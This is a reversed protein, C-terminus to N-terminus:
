VLIVGKGAIRGDLLAQIAEAGRDLPYRAGIHPQIRGEVYWNQLRDFNSADNNDSRRQSEGWFVGVLSAGKLMLRNTEIRPITGSAFGFVLLRGKWGLSRVAEEGLTGGVPDLILAAGKDETFAAVATKLAGTRYNFVAEAGRARAHALREDDGDVALVRAGAIAALEVAALGVGGTAGLIVVAEGTQLGGRDFLAYMAAGYAMSLIAASDFGIDDHMRNLRWAPAVVQEAFAGFSTLGFVRDGPAFGNVGAGVELVVGAFESGPAFPLHPRIQYLGQVVLGDPFNLGAARVAVRVEGAHLPPREVEELVLNDVPGFTKCLLTKM